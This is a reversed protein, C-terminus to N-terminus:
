LSKKVSSIEHDVRSLKICVSKRKGRMKTKEKGGLVVPSRLTRRGM